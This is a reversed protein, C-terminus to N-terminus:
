NLEQIFFSSGDSSLPSPQAMVNRSSGSMTIQYLPGVTGFPRAIGSMTVYNGAFYVKSFDALPLIGRDYPAEAIWEASSRKANAVAANIQFSEGTTSDSISLMFVSSGVYKVEASIRDGPAVNIPVAYPLNPYLEIWAYYQVSGSIYDSETGIQEVTRSNFGDIGVWFASFGDSGTASSVAPVVWSGKVDSVSGPDGTVAYGVWNHSFVRAPRILAQAPTVALPQPAPNASAPAPATAGAPSGPNTGGPAAPKVGIFPITSAVVVMSLIAVAAMNSKIFLHLRSKGARAPYKTEM